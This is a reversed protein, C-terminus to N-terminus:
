LLHRCAYCYTREGPGVGRCRRPSVCLAGGSSMWLCPGSSVWLCPESSVWLGCVRCRGCSVAGVVGVLCPGSSVAGVVGVLPTAVNPRVRGGGNEGTSFM